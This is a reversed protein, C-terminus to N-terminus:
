STEDDDQLYQIELVPNKILICGHATFEEYNFVGQPYEYGEILIHMENQCNQCNVEYNWSFQIEYGMNREDSAADPGDFDEPLINYETLCKKCKIIPGEKLTM